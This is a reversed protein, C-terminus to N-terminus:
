NEVLSITEKCEPYNPCGWFYKGAHEGSHAKRLVMNCGCKICVPTEGCIEQMFYADLFEDSYEYKAPVRILKLNAAQFVADKKKDRIKVNEKNHSKDDLEIAFLPYLTDKTCILFDIHSKSIKGYYSMYDKGAGVIDFIDTLGVKAFILNKDGYYQSFRKYFSYEAQTLISQKLQFPLNDSTTGANKKKSKNVFRYYFYVAVTVLVFIFAIIGFSSFYNMNGEM